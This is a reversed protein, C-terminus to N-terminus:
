QLLLCKKTKIFKDAKITYFYIGSAIGDGFNNRGDWIINHYGSEKHENVLVTIERGLIDRVSIKVHCAKPLQYNITTTPNFPNPYNQKLEFDIPVEGQQNYVSSALLQPNNDISVINSWASGMGYPYLANIHFYNTKGGLENKRISWTNEKTTDFHSWNKGLDDVIDYYNVVYGTTNKSNKWNLIILTDNEIIEQAISISGPTHYFKSYVDENKVQKNGIIDEAILRFFYTSDPLPYDSDDCAKIYKIIVTDYEAEVMSFVQYSWKSEITDKGVGVPFSISDVVGYSGEVFNDVLVHYQKLGCGSDKSRKWHLIIDALGSENTDPAAVRYNLKTNFPPNEDKVLYAISDDHRGISDWWSYSWGYKHDHGWRDLGKIRIFVSDKHGINITEYLNNFVVQHNFSCEKGQDLKVFISDVFEDNLPDTNFGRNNAIQIWLTDADRFEGPDEIPSGTSDTWFWAFELQDGRFFEGRAHKSTGCVNTERFDIVPFFVLGPDNYVSKTVNNAPKMGNNEYPIVTYTYTAVSNANRDMFSTEGNFFTTDKEFVNNKSRKVAFHHVLEKSLTDWLAKQWYTEWSVFIGTSDGPQDQLKLNDVRPIRPECYVVACKSWATELKSTLDIGNVYGYLRKCQNIIDFSMSTNGTCKNSYGFTEQEADCSIPKNDYFIKVNYQIANTDVNTPLPHKWHITLTSTLTDYVMSTIEPARNCHESDINSLTDVGLINVARVQYSYRQFTNLDLSDIWSTEKTSDIVVSDDGEVCKNIEYFAIPIETGDPTWKLSINGDYHCVDTYVDLVPLDPRALVRKVVVKNSWTSKRSDFFNARVCVINLGNKLGIKLCDTEKSVKFSDANISVTFDTVGTTDYGQWCLAAFDKATHKVGDKIVTDPDCIVDIPPGIPCRAKAEWATEVARRVNGVNDISGVKYCITTSVKISAFPDHYSTIDYGVMDIPKFDSDVGAIKRYIVYKDVGSAFDKAPNWKIEMYGGYFGKTDTVVAKVTLNSIDDPPYADMTVSGIQTELDHYTFDNTNGVKDKGCVRFFYKHNNVFSFSNAGDNSLDFEMCLSDIAIWNTDFFKKGPQWQTAFFKENDRVAQIRLFDVANIDQCDPNNTPDEVCVTVKVGRKYYEKTEPNQYDWSKGKEWNFTLDCPQTSDPIVPGADIGYGINGVIDVASVKFFYAIGEELGGNGNLSDRYSCVEVSDIFQYQGGKEMRYIYYWEVSSVADNVCEWYVNIIGGSDAETSIITVDEPSSNDQTSYVTDSRVTIVDSGNLFYAEVYYGYTHGDELKEFPTYTTDSVVSKLLIPAQSHFAGTLTDYCFIEHDYATPIGVWGVTNSLGRTYKPEPLLNPLRKIEITKFHVSSVSSEPSQDGKLFVVINSGKNLFIAGHHVKKYNHKCESSPDGDSQDIIKSGEIEGNIELKYEEKGQSSSSYGAEVVFDYYGSSPVDEIIVSCSKEIFSNVLIPSSSCSEEPLIRYVCKPEKFESDPFILTDCETEVQLNEDSNKSGNQANGVGIVGVLVILICILGHIYIKAAM